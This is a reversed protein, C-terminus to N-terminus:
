GVWLIARLIGYVVFEHLSRSVQHSCEPKYARKRKQLINADLATAADAVEVKTEVPWPLSRRCKTESSSFSKRRSTRLEGRPRREHGSEAPM